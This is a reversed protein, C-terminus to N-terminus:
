EKTMFYLGVLIPVLACVQWITPVEGFMLYALGLTLAPVFAEFSIAKPVSIRHIAEIFFIKSLGFILFGNILLFLISKSIAELSIMPEFLLALVCLFIVSLLSRSFMIATSGIKKRARQQFYNGFPAIMTAFVILLDGFNFSWEAPFLIVIAGIGMLVAGCVHPGTIKETRFLCGFIFFSFLIEFLFIISANGATTYQLGLFVLGYFGVGIFFTVWLIDLWADRQFVEHWQKKITLWVAFFCIAFFTSLTVAWLPTLSSLAVMSVIPFLAWFVNSGGIFLEGKRKESIHM